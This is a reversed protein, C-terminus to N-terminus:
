FPIDEDRASQGNGATSTQEKAAVFVNYDPQNDGDKKFDNKFIMVKAGGLTGSMYSKGAKTKNLWLGTLKIMGSNENSM